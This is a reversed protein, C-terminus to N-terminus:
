VYQFEKITTVKAMLEQTVQYNSFAEKRAKEEDEQGMSIWTDTFVASACRVSESPDNFIKLHLLKCLDTCTLVIDNYPDTSFPLLM